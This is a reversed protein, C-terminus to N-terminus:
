SETRARTLSGNLEGHSGESGSDCPQQLEM